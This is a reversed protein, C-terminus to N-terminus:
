SAFGVFKVEPHLDVNCIANVRERIHQILAYVDDASGQPDAQIFNAHRESVQATLLRFGRLGAEDILRGASDGEPNTFVSGCNQGGPQHERRWGVIEDLQALAEVSSGKVLLLEAGCVVQSQTISSTRYGFKLETSSMKLLREGAPRLLDFVLARQVSAAMDSGHGGANMRVAGGVTGPVGVAWEFSRLGASALRRAAIPLALSAGLQVGIKEGDKFTGPDAGFAVDNFANGLRVVIGNFGADAVLMNSGLGIAMVSLAFKSAVDAIMDLDELSMPVAVIKAVGGVRYTTRAGLPADLSALKGLAEGAERYVSNTAASNDITM